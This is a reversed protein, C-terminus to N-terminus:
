RRVDLISFENARHAAHKMRPMDATLFIPQQREFPHIAVEM